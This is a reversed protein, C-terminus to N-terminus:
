VFFKNQSLMGILEGTSSINLKKLINRRHTDVTNPSICLKEAVQKSSKKLVLLRIIDRERSSIGSELLKKSYNKFFLTEYQDNDGLKKISGCIQLSINSDLINCQALVIVPKNDKDFGIPTVNQIINVYEDNSNKIRYNVTYNLKIRDGIPIKNITFSLMENMSNLWLSMDEPHIKSKYFLVGGDNLKSNGYGICARMNKSIYDFSLNRLDVICYYNTGYPLCSDVEKIKKIYKELSVERSSAFTENYINKIDM